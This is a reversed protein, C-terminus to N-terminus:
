ENDSWRLHPRQADVEEYTRLDKVIEFDCCLEDNRIYVTDPDNPYVGFYKKYETGVTNEPDDITTMRDDVLIGDSLLTLSIADYDEFDGFDAPGIVYPGDDTGPNTHDGVAYGNNTIIENVLEEIEVAKENATKQIDEALQEAVAEPSVEVQEAIEVADKSIDNVAETQQDNKKEKHISMLTAGVIAGCIFSVLYAAKNM